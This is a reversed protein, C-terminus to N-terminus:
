PSQSGEGRVASMFAGLKGEDLRGDSRLGSCVDLGFPSVERIAREVNDPRLGGALYVPIEVVRRIEGSVTWDHTRGTGGLEAVPGDPRGSDLLLADSDAAASAAVEVSEAGIVHVVAILRIGPLAARVEGRIAPEVPACLQIAGAGTRRQQSVIADPQTESTLLVATVGPPVAAAIEAILSEAIVGPGSPMASVLGVASAGYRVAARAEEVSGICCVKVRPVM